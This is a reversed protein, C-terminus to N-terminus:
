GEPLAEVVAGSETQGDLPGDALADKPWYAAILLGAAVALAWVTLPRVEFTSTRMQWSLQGAAFLSIALLGTLLDALTEPLRLARRVLFVIIFATGWDYILSHPNVLNAVALAFAAGAYIDISKRVKEALLAAAVLLVCAIVVIVANSHGFVSSVGQNYSHGGGVDIAARVFLIDLWDFLARSGLWVFPLLVFAAASVIIRLWVSLPEPYVILAPGLLATPKLALAGMSIAGLNRNRIFLWVCVATAAAVFAGTQGIRANLLLPEWCLVAVVIAGRWAWNRVPYAAILALGVTALATAVKWIRFATGDSASALGATAIAAAPAYPYYGPYMYGHESEWRASDPPYHYLLEEYGTRILKGAALLFFLDGGVPTSWDYADLVSPTSRWLVLAIFVLAIATSLRSLREASYLLQLRSEGAQTAEVLGDQM